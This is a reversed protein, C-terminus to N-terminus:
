HVVSDITQHIVELAMSDDLTSYIAIQDMMHTKASFLEGFNLMHYM